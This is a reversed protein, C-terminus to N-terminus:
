RASLHPAAWLAVLWVTPFTAIRHAPSGLAALRYRTHRHHADAPSQRIRIRLLSAVRRAFVVNTTRHLAMDSYQDM